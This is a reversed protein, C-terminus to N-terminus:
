KLGELLILEYTPHSVNLLKISFPLNSDHRLGVDIIQFLWLYHQTVTSNRIGSNFAM